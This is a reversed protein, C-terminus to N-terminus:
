GYLVFEAAAGLAGSGTLGRSVVTLFVPLTCGLSGAAYALGFASYAAVGRGKGAAGLPASVRDLFALNPAGVALMWSGAAVVAVGVTLGLWPFYRAIGAATASVALGALGFLVVFSASVTAGVLVRTGAQVGPGGTLCWRYRHRLVH